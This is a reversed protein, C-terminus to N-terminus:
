DKLNNDNIIMYDFLRNYITNKDPYCSYSFYFDIKWNYSNTKAQEIEWEKRKLQPARM